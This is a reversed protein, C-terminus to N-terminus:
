EQICGITYRVGVSIPPDRYTVISYRDSESVLTFEWTGRGGSDVNAVVGCPALVAGTQNGRFFQTSSSQIDVNAARCTILASGDNYRYVVHEVDWAAGSTFIITESCRTATTPQMGPAGPAGPAGADGAPGAIGQPGQPGMPGECGLAFAAVCLLSFLYAARIM